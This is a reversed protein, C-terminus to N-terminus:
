APVFIPIPEHAHMCQASYDRLVELKEGPNTITSSGGTPAMESQYYLFFFAIFIDARVCDLQLSM